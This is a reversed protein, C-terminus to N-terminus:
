SGTVKDTSLHLPRTGNLSEVADLRDNIKVPDMLPHWVWQKFMRKGFPTICRNLLMYPTGDAGGDFSNAFVELNILTKGDLVLSSAMKIPDYWSFNGLTLLDHEIKLTRM